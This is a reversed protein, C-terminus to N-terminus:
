PIRRAAAPQYLYYTRGGRSRHEGGRPVCVTEALLDLHHIVVDHLTPGPLDQLAEDVHVPVLRGDYVPADDQIGLPSKEDYASGM